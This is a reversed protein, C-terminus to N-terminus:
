EEAMHILPFPRGETDLPSRGVQRFGLRRYFGLAQVNQENVDVTLPGRLSRAHEILARGLGRGHHDPAVFLAEVVAQYLGVFGLPAGHEDVLVHVEATPLYNDRVVARFFGVDDESLFHHSSRVATEWIELLRAADGARASRIRM